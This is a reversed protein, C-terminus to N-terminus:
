EKNEKAYCSIRFALLGKIRNSFLRAREAWIAKEPCNNPVIYGGNTCQTRVECIECEKHKTFPPNAM